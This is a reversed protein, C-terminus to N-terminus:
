QQSTSAPTRALEAFRCAFICRKPNQHNLKACYVASASRLRVYVEAALLMGMPPAVFYIWLGSFAHASLASGFTRAPNMSMGSLPAEFTIYTAILTAAFFGTFRGLKRDNSVLLVTLLLLFSISAEAVFAVGPGATGPLTAAYNVSPHRVAMGVAASIVMVGAIGGAFQALVYFVADWPAIKKLRLFTLTVAPNMHAGSQQGWGSYILALATGAMALGILFRRLLPDPIFTHIPSSPHELLITFACASVMFIGLEAAEMMYEPWHAKLATAGAQWATARTEDAANSAIMAGTASVASSISNAEM